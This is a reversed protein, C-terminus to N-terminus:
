PDNAADREEESKLGSLWRRLRRVREPLEPERCHVFLDSHGGQHIRQRDIGGQRVERRRQARAWVSHEHGRGPGALRCAHRKVQEVLGPRFPALQDEELRAPEGGAGGGVAHRAGEALLDAVGDAQAHPEARLDAALCTELHDRFPHEGAHDQGIRGEVADRAHQEVFKMLTGEVGIEAEGQGEVRL